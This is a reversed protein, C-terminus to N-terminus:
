RGGTQGQTVAHPTPAARESEDGSKAACAALGLASALLATLVLKKNVM